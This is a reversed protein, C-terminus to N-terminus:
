FFVFLLSVFLSFQGRRLVAWDVVLFRFNVDGFSFGQTGTAEVGLLFVADFSFLYGRYLCLFSDRRM